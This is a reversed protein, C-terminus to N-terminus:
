PQALAQVQAADLVTEYVHLEDILGRYPLDWWNTGLSFVGDSGTFVEPFGTGAYRPQGDVYVRADGADITFAVHSWEGVPTTVGLGADYWATGSWLMSHEGAGAHGRPLFSIWHDPDRAGFFTPTFMSLAEPQLWFAVSYRRGQILGPPLRIGSAGDFSAAQGSVGPVFGIRGGALDIREGAISGAPHQGSVDSLDGDFAYHAVLGDGRRARVTVAYTRSASLGRLSATATLAVTRDGMAADPRTVRGDDDLWRPDSSRWALTAGRTALTPLALDVVTSQPLAVDALIDQLLQATGRQPLRSGWLAVGDTGTVSFTPVSAQATENWQWSVVGSAIRGDDLNLTLTQNALQWRGSLAGTVRGNAELGLDRAAPLAASIPKDHAVLTYDGVLEPRLQRRPPAGNHRHPALVPWGQANIFFEHTRVQHAEGRGPFRTHFVLFWRGSRADHHVSNHGPSVYGHGPGEGPEGLRRDFRHNGILKNGHPAISADDFLPLTPDAMVTAMDVGRGDVYPGDPARSRAVRVNYGGDAALGGFSTFLYYWRSRPDYAIAPAEIRAHHGGTLRKGYGQGPLPRGTAPDLRLIFIGGSYSGYVMWLRRQADFFVDPDVTNPHIGADYITGDESPQGWMGSRLLIGQNRYPGEPRDAVALGLASRPSDGRCANYYMYYRGDGLRIVDPAWLTDTQAWELTERLEVLVNDFLPNQANVGDAISDWALLDDSRAAALHSGFIYYRGEAELIAPDHVSVEQFYPPVESGPARREVRPGLWAANVRTHFTDDAAAPPVPRVRGRGSDSATAASTAALCLLVAAILSRKM